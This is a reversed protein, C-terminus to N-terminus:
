RPWNLLILLAISGGIITALTKWEKRYVQKQQASQVPSLAPRNGAAHRILDVLAEAEARTNVFPRLALTQMKGGATNPMAELRPQYGKAVIAEGLSVEAYDSLHLVQVRGFISTLRVVGAEVHLVPLGRVLSVIFLLPFAMLFLGMAVPLLMHTQLPPQGAKIDAALSHSAAWLPILGLVTMLVMSVWVIWPYRARFTAPLQGASIAPHDKFMPVGKVLGTLMGTAM